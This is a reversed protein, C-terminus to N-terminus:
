YPRVMEFFFDPNSFKKHAREGSEVYQDFGDFNPMPLAQMHIKVCSVCSLMLMDAFFPVYLVPIVCRWSCLVPIVLCVQQYKSQLSIGRTQATFSQQDLMTERKKGRRLRNLQAYSQPQVSSAISSLRSKVKSLRDVCKHVDEQLGQFLEASFEAL